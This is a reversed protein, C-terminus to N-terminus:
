SMCFILYLKNQRSELSDLMICNLLNVYSSHPARYINCNFYVFRLFRNQITEIDHKLNLQHSSWLSSNYDLCSRVLSCYLTKLTIVNNFNNCHRRIFGLQKAAKNSITSIHKNFTLNSEFIVGWDKTNNVVLLEINSISCAYVIPKKIWFFSIASCKSLNFNMDNEL